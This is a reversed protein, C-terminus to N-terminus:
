PASKLEYHLRIFDPQEFLTVSFVQAFYEFTYVCFDNSPFEEAANKSFFDRFEIARELDKESFFFVKFDWILDDEGLIVETQLENNVFHLTQEEKQEYGQEGLRKGVVTYTSSLIITEQFHMGPFGKFYQNAITDKEVSEDSSDGSCAVFFLPALFVILKKM